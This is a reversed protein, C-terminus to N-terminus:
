GDRRHKLFDLLAQEASAPLDVATAERVIRPTAKYSAIFAVCRACGAVHAELSRRVDLPVVDELYDMLQDVGNRCVLDKM